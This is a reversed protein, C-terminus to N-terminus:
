WLKLKESLNGFSETTVLKIQSAREMEPMLSTSDDLKKISM